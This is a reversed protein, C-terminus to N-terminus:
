ARLFEYIGHPRVSPYRANDIPSLKGRGSAMDRAYQLQQWVPFVNNPAEDAARLGAIARDLDDLSGAPEITVPTGRLEAFLTALESPSKSDGAVRVVRGAQADLAVAAVYKALDDTSTFDYAQNPDGWVKFIGTKPDPGIMGLKLLDMFAGCLVSTGRVPSGDLTRNFTRRLDLNRNDGEVTKFFDVSYDSPIMRAVGAKEAARLLRTQGDLIVDGLGQVSCVVVDVAECARLLSAEDALDASVLEAGGARLKAVQDANSASRYSVRVNAAGLATLEHVIKAGLRGSAGVVLVRSRNTM